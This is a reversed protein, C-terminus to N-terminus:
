KRIFSKKPLSHRLGGSIRIWLRSYATWGGRKSTYMWINIGFLMSNLRRYRLVVDGSPAIIFCTQFYLGAFHPDLEYANGALYLDNDQAIKGLAEYEAGDMEICAKDAWAAISEGAPYGTMFYEPLVILKLDSGIFMKSARIEGALREITAMMLTRANERNACANVSQVETQLALAMYSGGLLREPSKDTTNM